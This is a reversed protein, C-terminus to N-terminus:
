NRGRKRRRRLSFYQTSSEWLTSGVRSKYKGESSSFYDEPNQPLQMSKVLLEGVRERLDKRTEGIKTLTTSGAFLLPPSSLHMQLYVLAM